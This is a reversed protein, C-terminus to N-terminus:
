IPVEWYAQGAASVPSNPRTNVKAQSKTVFTAQSGGSTDWPQRASAVCCCSHTRMHHDKPAM